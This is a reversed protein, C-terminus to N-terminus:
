LSSHPFWPGPPFCHEGREDMTLEDVASVATMPLPGYLHPFLAGGRSVEWRLADGLRDIEITVIVLQSQGRFHKRVTEILQGSTSLHIYGDAIDIAAGLFQGLTTAAEWAERSTVKFVQRADCTM